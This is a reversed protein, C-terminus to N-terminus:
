DENNDGVRSEAMMRQLLRKGAARHLQETQSVLEKRLVLEKEMLSGLEALTRQRVPSPIPIAIDSFVKRQVIPTGAGTRVQAIHAQIPPQNLCWALYAPDVNRCPHLIFFTASAVTPEPVSEVVAAHNRSGRSIFLVDGAKVLYRDMPGGPSIRLEHEPSYAYSLVDGVHKGMIVQHTGAPEHEARAKLAYGPLVQACDGIRAM